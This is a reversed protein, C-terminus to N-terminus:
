LLPPLFIFFLVRTVIKATDMTAALRAPHLLELVDDAPVVAAVSAGAAVSAAAGAAVSAAFASVSAGAGAAASPSSILTPMMLLSGLSDPYLVAFSASIFAM